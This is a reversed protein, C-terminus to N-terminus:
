DHIHLVWGYIKNKAPISLWPQPLESNSGYTAM